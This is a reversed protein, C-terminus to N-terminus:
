ICSVWSYCDFRWLKLLAKIKCTSMCVGCVRRKSCGSGVPVFHAWLCLRGTGFCGYRQIQRTLVDDEHGCCVGGTPRCLLLSVGVVAGASATTLLVLKVM